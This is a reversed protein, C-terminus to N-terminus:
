GNSAAGRPRPAPAAREEARPARLGQPSSFVLAPLGKEVLEDFLPGPDPPEFRRGGRDRGRGRGRGRRRSRRARRGGGRAEEEAARKQEIKRIRGANWADFTGHGACHVWHSLPVPRKEDVIVDLDQPRIERMWAGLEEVNAVTASLSIIRTTSPLFILSEEWVTGRERDDLYHVEDFIVYAVDHLLRPSEFIANRLIETTMILVPAEKNITVDGTMLGVDITPDNQFDRYKQNSLAKIPATYICRRGSRVADEIAYEAVLTKGAGTPASVLVNRGGRIADVAQLQFRSLTFGKWGVM